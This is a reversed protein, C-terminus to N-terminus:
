MMTSIVMDIGLQRAYRAEEVATIGCDVTIVLSVGKERLTNLASCNLGYGEENRDPIYPTCPVGRSRLWDTMLCTATIGDVDYDGYVAVSEHDRIAKLVRESAERMGLIRLPDYLCEEGGYLMASAAEVTNVGRLSLVRCLLPALGMGTIEPSLVSERYPISWDKKKM